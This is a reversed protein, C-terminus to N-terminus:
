NYIFCSYTTIACSSSTAQRIAKNMTFIHYPSLASQLGRLACQHLWAIFVILPESLESLVTVFVMSSCLWWTPSSPPYLQSPVRHFLWSNSFNPLHVHLSVLHIRDRAWCGNRRQVDQRHLTIRLWWIGLYFSTSSVIPCVCKYLHSFCSSIFIFFHFSLTGEM